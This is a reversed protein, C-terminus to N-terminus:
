DIAKMNLQFDVNLQDKTKVMGGLKRPPVLNFDSFNVNRDGSLHIKQQGNQTIEYNVQFRKSVGAIKIEVFGTIPEPTSGLAPLKNLSLFRVQLVPFEKENLTKRLQKTMGSNHCDFSGVSLSITGSLIIEKDTKSKSLVLTDIQDYAPIVCSFKNVNTSGNVSLSSNKSIVWRRVPVKENSQRLWIFGSGYLLVLLFTNKYRM